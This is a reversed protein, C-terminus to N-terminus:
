ENNQNTLSQILLAKMHAPTLVIYDDRLPVSLIYKGQAQFAVVDEITEQRTVIKQAEL